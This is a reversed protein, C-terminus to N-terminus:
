LVICMPFLMSSCKQVNFYIPSFCKLGNKLSCSSKKLDVLVHPLLMFSRHEVMNGEREKSVWSFNLFM